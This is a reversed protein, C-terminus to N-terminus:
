EAVAMADKFGQQILIKEYKEAQELTSCKGVRVRYLIDEGNDFATIHANKYTQDLRKKLRLANSRDRFAGVQVSFNGKSYDVPIYLREGRDTGEEPQAKGLAAIEVPATGAAVIGLRKAATYSLDIIRGRVFPGRDNIRVEVERRNELNRVRVFTGLPLTKHAATMGYMNYIEGNSTKKGHFAKGYWSAIGRQRFNHANAMPYYWNKGIKYPKSQKQSTSPQTYGKSPKPYTSSPRRSASSCGILFLIHLGALSALISFFVFTKRELRFFM